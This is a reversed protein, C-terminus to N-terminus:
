AESRDPILAGLEAALPRILDDPVEMNDRIAVTGSMIRDDPSSRPHLRGPLRGTM